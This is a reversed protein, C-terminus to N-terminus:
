ARDGEGETTPNSSSPRGPAHFEHGCRLSSWHPTHIDLPHLPTGGCKPCRPTDHCVACTNLGYGHRCPQVIVLEWLGDERERWEGVRLSEGRENEVEVFRGAEPGPPGDCVFRLETPMTM